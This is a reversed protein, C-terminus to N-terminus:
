GDKGAASKFVPLWVPVACQLVLVLLIEVVQEVAQALRSQRISRQGFRCRANAKTLEQRTHSGSRNGRLTWDAIPQLRESASCSPRSIVRGPRLRPTREGLM